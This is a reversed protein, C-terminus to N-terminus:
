RKLRFIKDIEYKVLDAPVMEIFSTILEPAKEGYSIGHWPHAKYLQVKKM